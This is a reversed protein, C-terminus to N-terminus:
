GPAGPRERQGGQQRGLQDSVYAWALARHQDTAHYPVILATSM